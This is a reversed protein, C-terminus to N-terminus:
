VKEALAHVVSRTDISAAELRHDHFESGRTQNGPVDFSKDYGDPLSVKVEANAGEM